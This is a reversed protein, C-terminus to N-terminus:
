PFFGEWINGPSRARGVPTPKQPSSEGSAEAVVRVLSKLAYNESPRSKVPTRCSPCIYEPKPLLDQFRKLEREIHQRSQLSIRPNQLMHRLQQMHPPNQDHQPNAQM